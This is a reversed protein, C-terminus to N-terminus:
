LAKRAIFRGRGSNPVASIPVGEVPTMREKTAFVSQDVALWADKQPDHRRARKRKRAFKWGTERISPDLGVKLGRDRPWYWFTV